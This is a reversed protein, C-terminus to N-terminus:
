PEPFATQVKYLRKESDSIVAIVGVHRMSSIPVVQMNEDLEFGIGINHILEASLKTSQTGSPRPNGQEDNFEKNIRDKNATLAAEVSSQM